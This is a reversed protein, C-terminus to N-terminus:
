FVLLSPKQCSVPVSANRLSLFHDGLARPKALYVEQVSFIQSLVHVHFTKEGAKDKVALNLKQQFLFPTRTM